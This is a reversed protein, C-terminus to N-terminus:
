DNPRLAFARFAATVLGTTRSLLGFARGSQGIKWPDSSGVARGESGGAMWRDSQGITRGDSQGVVVSRGDM